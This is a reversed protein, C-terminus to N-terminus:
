TIFTKLIEVPVKSKSIIEYRGISAPIFCSHGSTVIVRFDNYVIEAEGTKVFLHHFSDNLKTFEGSYKSATVFRDLAYYKTRLLSQAEVGKQKFLIKPKIKRTKPNNTRESRDIYKFYDDIDLKRLSGNDEFKGKDFCRLVSIPDMVDLCLEYLINGKPCKKSDEEWSHHLGGSSLDISDNGKTEVMNVYQWPNCKRILKQATKKAQALNMKGLKVQSSLNEMKQNIELCCGKYKNWDIGKKVGLTLLGPNFYYWSESKYHWKNSSDRERVHIQFSNGKAQTLKILIKIEPGYKKVAKLGLVAMPNEKILSKLSVLREKDGDYLIKNPEMACGLEGTFSPDKTSNIDSRLKSESFIEYSQGIKLNRFLRKHHWTKTNVIFQGGWTPQKILRPVVLYIKSL